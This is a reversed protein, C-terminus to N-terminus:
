NYRDLFAENAGVFGPPIQSYIPDVSGQLVRDIMEDRDVLYALAQRLRVDSFQEDDHNFVLYRIGGSGPNVLTFGEENGLRASEPVGLIRWAIDIEANELALAMATADEFYQFIVREPANEGFGEKYNENRELVTQEGQVYSTIQYPGVGYVTEPFQNLEDEPFLDAAAPAYPTTTALLLFDGRPALLTIELTYTDTAVASEIYKGVLTSAVDGQLALTRNISRAVDEATAETGDPYLWGQAITFTYVLGDESVEPFDEALVPVVDLTGPAFGMLSVNVNRMLEWDHFAYADANDLSSITDTMGIVVTVPEDGTEEEAMEEEEMEEEAAEEEAMEEEEMEEEAAPEEAAPEDAPAAPACGALVVVTVLALLAVLGSKLSKFM